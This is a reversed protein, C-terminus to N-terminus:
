GLECGNDVPLDLHFRTFAGVESEVSLSGGHEEVARHSVSLGLGTGRGPRKTTFFPDFIRERVDAPIGGGHDEVTTRVWTKGDRVVTTARVKIVKDEDYGVYREGLADRANTMLNLVVQQIQQSSCRVSPLDDPVDVALTIQDGKVITHFLTLASRVVDSIRAHSHEGEDRRSFALLSRVITAVRDSEHIIEKAYKRVDDQSGPKDLILEAYNMVGNIPNNIEHAVGGALTGVSELRQQQRLRAEMARQETIDFAYHLYLDGAVPLWHADWVRGLADAVLRRGTGTAWVEPALCWPCPSGRQQWTAFCSAGPVAGADRAVKNAAVVQRTEPRLLLAVCPLSDLLVENLAQREDALRALEKRDRQDQERLRAFEDERAKEDAADAVAQFFAEGLVPKVFFAFAKGRVAAAASELSPYGTIVIVPVRPTAARVAHLLEIGSRGPMVIDAVVVDFSGREILGLAEDASEAVEVQHGLGGLVDRLLDLVGENDDVVLVRAM